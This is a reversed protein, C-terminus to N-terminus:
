NQKTNIM